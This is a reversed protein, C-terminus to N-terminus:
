GAQQLLAQLQQLAHALLRLLAPPELVVQLGQQWVAHQIQDAAVEGGVGGALLADGQQLPQHLLPAAQLPLVVGVEGGALELGEEFLDALEQRHLLLHVQEVAPGLGARGGGIEQGAEGEGGGAEHLALGLADQRGQFAQLAAALRAHLHEHGALLQQQPLHFLGLGQKVGAGIGVQLGPRLLLSVLGEGGEAGM